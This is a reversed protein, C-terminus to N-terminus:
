LDGPKQGGPHIQSSKSHQLTEDQKALTFCVCVTKTNVLM